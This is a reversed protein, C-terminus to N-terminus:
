FFSTLSPGSVVGIQKVINQTSHKDDPISNKKLINEAIMDILELTGTGDKASAEIYQFGQTESFDRANELAVVRYEALDVKNGVVIGNYTSAPVSKHIEDLWNALNDFSEKNTLDYVYVILQSGRYFSGRVSEFRPQGGLDWICLNIKTGNDRETPHVVINVGITMKYAEMFRTKNTKGTFSNVLSTKGVTGDGVFAIKAQIVVM